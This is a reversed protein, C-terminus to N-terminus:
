QIGFERIIGQLTTALFCISNQSFIFRPPSFRYIIEKNMFKIVTLATTNNTPIVIPWGTLYEFPVLIFKNDSTTPPFPGAFYVSVADFLTSIPLHLTTRYQSIQKNRQCSDCKRVHKYIDGQCEPWWLREVIFQKTTDLDWHGIDDHFKATTVKAITHPCNNESWLVTCRFMHYEWIVFTKVIRLVWAMVEKPFTNTELHKLFKFMAILEEVYTHQLKRGM